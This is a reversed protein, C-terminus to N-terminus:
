DPSLELKLATRLLWMAVASRGLEGEGGPCKSNEFIVKEVSGLGWLQGMEKVKGQVQFCIM